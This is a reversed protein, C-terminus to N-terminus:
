IVSPEPALTIFFADWDAGIRGLLQEIVYSERSGGYTPHGLLDDDDKIRLLAHLIGRDRVYVKPTKVLRKKLNPAFPPQRM